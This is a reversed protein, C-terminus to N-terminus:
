RAKALLAPELGAVGVVFSSKSMISNGYKSIFKYLM